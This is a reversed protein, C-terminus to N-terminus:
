ARMEVKQNTEGTTERAAEEAKPSGQESFVVWGGGM